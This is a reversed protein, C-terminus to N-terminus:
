GLGCSRYSIFSVTGKGYDDGFPIEVRMEQLLHIWLIILIERWNWM